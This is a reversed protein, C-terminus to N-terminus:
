VQYKFSVSKGWVEWSMVERLVISGDRDIFILKIEHYVECTSSIGASHNM